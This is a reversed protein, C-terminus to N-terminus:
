KITNQLNQERIWFLKLLMYNIAANQSSLFFPFKYFKNQEHTQSMKQPRLVLKKKINLHFMCFNAYPHKHSCTCFM